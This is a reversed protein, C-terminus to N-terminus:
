AIMNDIGDNDDDGDDDDDGEDNCDSAVHNGQVRAKTESSTSRPKRQEGSFATKVRM